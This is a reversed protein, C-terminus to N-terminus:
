AAQEEATRRLVELMEAHIPGNSACLSLVRDPRYPQGIAEGRGDIHSIKGGAELLILAAAAMDWIKLKFEWYGDLRGAAVFCVDLAASGARRIGQATRLFAGVQHWNNDAATQRDYPFGTGVLSYLLKPTQSVQLRERPEDAIQVFAGKGAIASFTERREPDYVVGLLPREGQYLGLSVAYIPIGHAFNITGDIPDVYWKFGDAGGGVAAGEEGVIAHNPFAAQLRSTILEEALTDYQTVLDVASTKLEIEKRQRFGQRLLEGTEHAITIATNLIEQAQM